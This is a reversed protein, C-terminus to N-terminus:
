EQTTSSRPMLDAETAVTAPVGRSATVLDQQKLLDVARHVTSVAVEYREALAAMAPLRAGPALMGLRIAGLIDRAIHEYPESPTEPVALAQSNTLMLHAAAPLQPM